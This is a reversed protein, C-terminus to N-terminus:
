HTQRNPPNLLTDEIRTALFTCCVQPVAPAPSASPRLGAVAPPNAPSASPAVSGSASPAATSPSAGGGGMARGGVKIKLRPAGGSSQTAATATLASQAPALAFRLAENSIATARQHKPRHAGLLCSCLSFLVGLVKKLGLGKVWSWKEQPLHVCPWGADMDEDKVFRSGFTSQRQSDIM